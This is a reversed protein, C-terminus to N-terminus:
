MMAGNATSDSIRRRQVIQGVLLVLFLLIALVALPLSELTISFILAASCLVALVLEWRGVRVLFYRTKLVALVLTLLTTLLIYGIGPLWEWGLLLLMPNFVFLFPFVLGLISMQMALIATKMFNSEAIRSAVLAALAFPPTVASFIAFYFAAMHAAEPVVGMRVLAPITTIAVLLYAALTPVGAGLILSVVMVLLLAILVNGGSLSEIALPLKTGLGTGTLTVWIAALAATVVAIEAGSKAGSVCGDILSRWSPRTEKRLYALLLLLIISWFAAFSASRGTSLLIVLAILPVIFLPARLVFDRWDIQVFVSKLGAKRGNLEAEIMLAVYYFIAPLAAMALVAVYPIGIIEAMVFATAGMVPPMIQGGM